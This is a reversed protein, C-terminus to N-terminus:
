GERNPLGAGDALRLYREHLAAVAARVAERSGANDIVDDAAALRARRTAQAALMRRAGAANEGDRAMLREIQVAEPCDVVLVRDVQREFGTEVLLPIVLVVYPATSAAVRREMEEVIAPHLLAELRRRRLADGFVIDRLRARDLAGDADLVGAGFEAAVRELAPHGPQVVERALLDTDIVPVGLAAFEDAVLSKGSAIGGTLGIRMPGREGM